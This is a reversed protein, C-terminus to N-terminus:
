TPPPRYEHAGSKHEIVNIYVYIYMCRLSHETVIQVVSINDCSYSNLTYLYLFMYLPLYTYLYYLYLVGLYRYLFLSLLFLSKGSGKRMSGCATVHWSHELKSSSSTLFFIFRCKQIKKSEKVLLNKMLQCSMEFKKKRSKYGYMIMVM